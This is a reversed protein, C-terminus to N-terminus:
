ARVKRLENTWYQGTQSNFYLHKYRRRQASEVITVGSMVQQAIINLSRKRLLSIVDKLFQRQGRVTEVYRRHILFENILWDHSMDIIKKEELQHIIVHFLCYLFLYIQIDLHIGYEDPKTHLLRIPLCGLSQPKILPWTGERAWTMAILLSDSCRPGIANFLGPYKMRACACLSLALLFM